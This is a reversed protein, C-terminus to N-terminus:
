RPPSIKARISKRRQPLPLGKADLQAGDAKSDTLRLPLTPVTTKTGSAQARPAPEAAPNPSNPRGRIRIRPAGSVAQLSPASSIGSFSRKYPSSPRGSGNVHSSPLLAQAETVSTPSPPPQVPRADPAGQELVAQYDRGLEKALNRVLLSSDVEVLEGVVGALNVSPGAQDLSQEFLELKSASPLEPNDFLLKVLRLLNLRVVANSHSRLREVVGEIFASRASVKTCLSTSMRLIQM